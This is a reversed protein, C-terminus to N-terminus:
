FTISSLISEIQAAVAQAVLTHGDTGWHVNDTFMVIDANGDGTPTGLNGTGTIINLALLDIYPVNAAVCAAKIAVGAAAVPAAASYWPSLMIHPTNPWKAKAAAIYAAVAATLTPASQGADNRGGATIILDPTYTIDALRDQFKGLPANTAIFGTGGYGLIDVDLFGLRQAAQAAYSYNAFNAATGATLSDGVWLVRSTPAIAPYITDAKNLTIGGFMLYQVAITLRRMRRANTGFNIHTITAGGVLGTDALTLTGAPVNAILKELGAGGVATRYVNYSAITKDPNGAVTNTNATWTVNATLNGASVTVSGQASAPVEGGNGDVTCVRYRYLGAPLAGGAAAVVSPAAIGQLGFDWRYRWQNAGGSGVLTVPASVAKIGPGNPGLEDQVRLQMVTAYLSTHEMEVQPADTWFDIWQPGISSTNPDSAQAPFVYPGGNAGPQVLIQRDHGCGRLTWPPTPNVIKTVNDPALTWVPYLIPNGVTPNVTNPGTDTVRPPFAMIPILPGATEPALPLIIKTRQKIVLDAASRSAAEASIAMTNATIATTNTSVQVSLANFAVLSPGAPSGGGAPSVPALTVLDIGTGVAAAPVSIDYTRGVGGGYVSEQVLYTWGSPNIDPDDTAQLNVTFHGTGDLDASVSQVTITDANDNLITQVRPTFSVQGAAPTGNPKIFTGRVAVRVTM